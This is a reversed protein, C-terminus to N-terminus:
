RSCSSGTWWGHRVNICKQRAANQMARMDQQIAQDYESQSPIYERDQMAVCENTATATRTHNLCWRPAQQPSPLWSPRGAYQGGQMPQYARRVAMEMDGGQPQPLLNSYRHEPPLDPNGYLSQAAATMPLCLLAFAIAKRM